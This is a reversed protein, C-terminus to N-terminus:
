WDSQRIRPDMLIACVYASGQRGKLQSPNSAPMSPLAKAFNTRSLVRNIERGERSVRIFQGPARYTFRLGTVTKFEGGAHREIRPWVDEITAM